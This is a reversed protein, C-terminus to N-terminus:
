FHVNYIPVLRGLLNLISGDHPVRKIFFLAVVCHFTEVTKSRPSFDLLWCGLLGGRVGLGLGGPAHVLSEHYGRDHDPPSPEFFLPIPM